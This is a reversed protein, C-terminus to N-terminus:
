GDQLEASLRESERRLWHDAPLDACAAALLRAHARALERTPAGTAELHRTLKWLIRAYSIGRPGTLARARAEFRELYAPLAPSGRESMREAVELAVRALAHVRPDRGLLTPPLGELLVDLGEILQEDVVAAGAQYRLLAELAASERPTLDELTASAYLLARPVYPAAADPGHVRREARILADLTEFRDYADPESRQQQLTQARLLLSLAREDDGLDLLMRALSTLVGAEIAPKGDYRRGLDVVPDRLLSRVTPDAGREADLSRDAIALEMFDVIGRAREAQYTAREAEHAAREGLRAARRWLAMAVVTATV